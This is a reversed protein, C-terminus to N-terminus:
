MAFVSVSMASMNDDGPPMASMNDFSPWLVNAFMDGLNPIPDEPDEAYPTHCSYRTSSGQATHASSYTRQGCRKGAMSTAWRSSTSNSVCQSPADSDLGTWVMVLMMALPMPM